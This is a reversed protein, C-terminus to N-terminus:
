VDFIDKLKDIEKWNRDKDEVDNYVNYMDHTAWKFIAVIFDSGCGLRTLRSCLYHRYCHPYLNTNLIKEWKAVWYRVGDTTIPKGQRTIFIANHNQGYKDMIEKRKPLWMNYYPLFDDKLIFKSMMTGTKTHGKTKIDETTELFLGSFATYNEDIMDTTIRLSESVRVGSSSLLMLYVAEQLRDEKLLEERLFDIDEDKLVTKKRVPVKPIKPVAKNILNKFDPYDEDLYDVIFDSFSNMLSRMRAYRNGSWKLDLLGYDFFESLEIKKMKIFSKNELYQVCYCFFINLDSTYGIITEDSCKANKYKLFQKMLRKNEPNIKEILEDSTIIKRFTKRAM